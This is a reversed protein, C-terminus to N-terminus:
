SIPLRIGRKVLAQLSPLEEASEEAPKQLSFDVILYHELPSIVKRGLVNATHTIEVRILQPFAREIGRLAKM